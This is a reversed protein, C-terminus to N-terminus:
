SSRVSEFVVATTHTENAADQMRQWLQTRYWCHQRVSCKEHFGVPLPRIVTTAVVAAEPGRGCWREPYHRGLWQLVALSFHALAGTANDHACRFKRLCNLNIRLSFDYTELVLLNQQLICPGILLDIIRSWV